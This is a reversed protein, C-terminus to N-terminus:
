SAPEILGLSGDKKRYLVNVELSKANRFVLFEQKSLNLQMVAEETDMPKAIMQEVAIVSETDAAASAEEGEGEEEPRAGEPRRERIKQLHRKVQKEIKDMVQDIASYMDGTEEMAKIRTGNVILTVDAQHRFKEVSLVVHAEVPVDLYKRVKSVKEEAYVKLAESPETRRFTVTIDM